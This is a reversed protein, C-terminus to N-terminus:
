AWEILSTCDALLSIPTNLGLGQFEGRTRANFPHSALFSPPPLSKAIPKREFRQLATANHRSGLLREASDSWGGEEDFDFIMM